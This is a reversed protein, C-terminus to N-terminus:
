VKAGLLVGVRDDRDCIVWVEELRVVLDCKVAEELALLVKKGEFSFKHRKSPCSSASYYLGLCGM